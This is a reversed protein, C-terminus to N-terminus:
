KLTVKLLIVPGDMCLYDLFDELILPNVRGISLNSDDVACPHLMKKLVM